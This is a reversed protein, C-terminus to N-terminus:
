DDDDRKGQGVPPIPLDSNFSYPLVTILGTETQDGRTLTLKYAGPQVYIAGPEGRDPLKSLQMNWTIRQIGASGGGGLTAVTKGASNEIKISAGPGSDRCWYSIVAGLAPNSVAFFKDGWYGDRGGRQRPRSPKPTFLHVPKDLIEQTLQSLASADDLIWISRGHTAAVLDFAIPHEVVDHVAVTPLSGANLKAWHDGLDASVYMGTETGAYLVKGKIDEKVVRVSAGKPLDGCVDKWTRGFDTTILIAPDYNDNRHGDIAAFATGADAHSAELNAVYRGKLAPPTINSWTIGDDQTVQILGDDTGAWLVGQKVPSEALAVVTGATEASSGTTLIKKPDQTSLDPSIQQWEDGRKLLKFVCNGGLYLVTPDHTSVLFPANWNFRFGPQGEKAEPQIDRFDGERLNGRGISGGQSETYVVDKDTPDFAVHFGDGGGVTVWERNVIGNGEGFRTQSPGLWCGNDQLGGMVRYPETPDVAVNYFEGVAMQVMSDWTKGRDFSQYIGGDSGVILHDSDTPDIAMAHWDVHLKHTLENEFSKGGDDSSWIDWGLLYVRKPDKPDIRIKSFYFARPAQANVRTWTDGGDESRFVGGHRSRNEDINRAGGEDSEVVAMVVNPNSRSVDLGIRGTQKPLGNTLRQWSKGADRSRFIGGKESGSQFSYATRSRAYMAAYVTDPNKPDLIVDIAGTNEDIQLVRQWSKGADSTKYVGRMKNPGWLHGLAAAYCVDPNRPDVALRPIDKSDELGVHSFTAGGDTSRYMGDGWSSSNRGNGEGTGVWVIKAKGSKTREGADTPAKKDDKWGAWDAPADAVVVSGVSSTGQNEFVPQFATGMSTTKFLGGTGFAAFYTKGNDPAFALDSARGGMNAPGISRWSFSKLDDATLVRHKVPLHATFSLVLALLALM